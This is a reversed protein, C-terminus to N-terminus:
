KNKFRELLKLIPTYVFHENHKNIIFDLHSFHTLPVPSYYVVNPLQKALLRTDEPSVLQDTKGFFLATPYKINKLDYLPPSSTNYKQKNIKPGYDYNQFNGSVILQGYHLAQKVSISDILISLISAVDEQDINEMDTDATMEFSLNCLKKMFKNTNTVCLMTLLEAIDNESFYPPPIQYLKLSDALLELQDLPVLKLLLEIWPQKFNKYIAGPALAVALKIKENYEPRESGMVFITTCGQSHGVYFLNSQDTANLIHDIVAPIDYAGIEHFSFDWFKKQEPNLKKHKKSHSTGRCNMLWVDYGNDALIYALSRQPGMWIYNEASGLMGHNLIIPLNSSMTANRGHPIRFATLIYGDETGIQHAEIPYGLSSVTKILKETRNSKDLFM